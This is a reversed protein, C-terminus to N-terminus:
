YLGHWQAVIRLADFLHQYSYAERSRSHVAPVCLLLYILRLTSRESHGYTGLLASSPPQLIDIYGNAINAVHAVVTLVQRYRNHRDICPQALTYDNLVRPAKRATEFECINCNAREEDDEFYAKTSSGKLTTGCTAIFKHVTEGRRHSVAFIPVQSTSSASRM